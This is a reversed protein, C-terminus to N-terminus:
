LDDGNDETPKTVTYSIDTDLSLTVSPDNTAETEDDPDRKQNDAM